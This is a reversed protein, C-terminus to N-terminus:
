EKEAVELAAIPTKNTTKRFANLLVFNGKNFSFYLIRFDNTSQKIRLEWINNYPGELKKIHPPFLFLGYEQLLDIERLIKAQEKANLQRIFEVIPSIGKECLVRNCVLLDGRCRFANYLM